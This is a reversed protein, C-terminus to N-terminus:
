EHTAEEQTAIAETIIREREKEIWRRAKDRIGRDVFVYESRSGPLRALVESLALSSAVTGDRELVPFDPAAPQRPSSGFRVKDAGYRGTTADYIAKSALAREGIDSAKRSSAIRFHDRDLIRRAPDHGARSSDRKADLMAVTVESDTVALHGEVDTPFRGGELWAELFDKLHADNILRTPHFYVQSFMLYRAIMLAEASELGGQEIGLSAEPMDGSTETEDQPSSTTPLIRLTNILRHHDFRGYAVGTHLSDRLLYDIRDAGFDGSIMEALIAEWPSFSLPLRLKEVTQAGLAVKAVDEPRPRPTMTEWVQGMEPSHIIDYTIREHDYGAPLLSEEAAHSFPLHGLDHCLAAVRLVSRWYLFEVPDSKPVIEGVSGDLKDDRTVTDFIRGAIHMVGLSHEFRKHSAGPYVLFSLALQHIHRLRQFAPSDIVALEFRDAEIFGHVADRIERRGRSVPLTLWEPHGDTETYANLTANETTVM